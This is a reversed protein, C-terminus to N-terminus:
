QRLGLNSPFHVIAFSVIVPHEGERVVDLLTQGLLLRMAAIIKPTVVTLACISLWHELLCRSVHRALIALLMALTLSHRLCCWGIARCLEIVRDVGRLYRTTQGDLVRHIAFVGLMVRRLLRCPM